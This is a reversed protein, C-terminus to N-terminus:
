KLVGYIKAIYYYSDNDICNVTSSSGVFINWERATAVQISDASTYVEMIGFYNGSGSMSTIAGSRGVISLGMAYDSLAAEIILHKYASFNKSIRGNTKKIGSPFGWNLSSYSSDKDYLLTKGDRIVAGFYKETINLTPCNNAYLKAYTGTVSVTGTCNYLYVSGSPLTANIECNIYTKGNTLTSVLQGVVLDTGNKPLYYSHIINGNNDYLARDAAIAHSAEGVEMDSYVGTKQAFYDTVAKQSMVDTTSQGTTQVVNIDGGGGGGSDVVEALRNVEQYLERKPAGMEVAM